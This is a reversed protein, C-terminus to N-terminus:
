HDSIMHQTNRCLAPCMNAYELVEIMESYDSATFVIPFLPPPTHQINSCLHLKITMNILRISGGGGGVRWQEPTVICHLLTAVLAPFLGLCIVYFAELLNKFM